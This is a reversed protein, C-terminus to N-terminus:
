RLLAKKLVTRKENVVWYFTWHEFEVKGKSKPIFKYILKFICFCDFQNVGHKNASPMIQMLIKLMIAAGIVHLCSWCHQPKNQFLHQGSCSEFPLYIKMSM